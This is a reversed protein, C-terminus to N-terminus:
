RNFAPNAVRSTSTTHMWNHGDAFRGYLAGLKCLISLLLTQGYCGRGYKDSNRM